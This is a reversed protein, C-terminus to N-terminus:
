DIWLNEEEEETQCSSWLWMMMLLKLLWCHLSECVWGERWDVKWVMWTLM